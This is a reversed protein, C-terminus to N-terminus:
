RQFLMKGIHRFAIERGMLYFEWMRCFREDYLKVKRIFVRYHPRAMCSRGNASATDRRIKGAIDAIDVGAKAFHRERKHAAARNM